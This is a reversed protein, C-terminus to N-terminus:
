LRIGILIVITLEMLQTRPHHLTTPHSIRRCYYQSTWLVLRGFKRVSGLEAVNCTATTIKVNDCYQCFGDWRILPLCVSVTRVSLSKFVAVRSSLPPVDGSPFGQFVLDTLSVKLQLESHLASVMLDMRHHIISSHTMASFTNPHSSLKPVGQQLLLHQQAASWQQQQQFGSSVEGM